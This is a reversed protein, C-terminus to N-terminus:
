QQRHFFHTMQIESGRKPPMYEQEPNHLLLLVCLRRQTASRPRVQKKEVDKDDVYALVFDIRRVGDRFFVTDANPQLNDTQPLLLRCLFSVKLGRVPHSTFAFVSFHARHSSEAAFSDLIENM